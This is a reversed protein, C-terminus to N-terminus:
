NLRKKQQEIFTQRLATVYTEIESTEALIRSRNQRWGSLLPKFRFSSPRQSLDVLDEDVEIFNLKNEVSKVIREKVSTLVYSKESKTTSNDFYKHERLFVITDRAADILFDEVSSVEQELDTTFCREIHELVKDIKAERHLAYEKERREREAIELQKKLDAEKEQIHQEVQAKRDTISLRTSLELLQTELNNLYDLFETRVGIPLFFQQFMCANPQDPDYFETDCDLYEDFVSVFSDVASDEAISSEVPIGLLSKVDSISLTEDVAEFDCLLSYIRELAIFDSEWIIDGDTGTGVLELKEM